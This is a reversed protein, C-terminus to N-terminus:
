WKFRGWPWVWWQETWFSLEHPLVKGYSVARCNSDGGFTSIDKWSDKLSIFEGDTAGEELESSL